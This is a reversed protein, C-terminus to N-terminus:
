KKFLNRVAKGVTLLLWLFFASIMVGELILILSYWAPIKREENSRIEEDWHSEESEMSSSEETIQVNRNTKEAECRTSVSEERNRTKANERSKSKKTVRSKLPPTGTLSDVPQTSDFTETVCETDEERSIRSELLRNLHETLIRTAHEEIDDTQLVTAGAQQITNLGTERRLEERQSRKTTACSACCLAAMLILTTLTLATPPLQWLRACGSCRGRPLPWKGRSPSWKMRPQRYPKEPRM